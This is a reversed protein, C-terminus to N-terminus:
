HHLALDLFQILFYGNPKAWNLLEMECPLSHTLDAEWLGGLEIKSQERSLMLEM